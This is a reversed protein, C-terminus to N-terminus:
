RSKVVGFYLKRFFQSISQSKFLCRKSKFTIIAELTYTYLYISL